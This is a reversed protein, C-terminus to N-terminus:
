KGKPKPMIALTLDQLILGWGNLPIKKPDAVKVAQDMALKQGLSATEFKASIEAKLRPDGVSEVAEAVKNLADQNADGWRTARILAFIVPILAAILAQNNSIFNVIADLVHM